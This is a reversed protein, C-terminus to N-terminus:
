LSQKWNMARQHTFQFEKSPSPATWEVRSGGCVIREATKAENRRTNAAIANILPTTLTRASVPESKM